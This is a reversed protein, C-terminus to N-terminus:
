FSFSQAILSSGVVQGNVALLSGDAQHQLGLRGIALILLPYGVGLLLPLVLLCRTATGLQRLFQLM